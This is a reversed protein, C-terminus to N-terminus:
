AMEVPMLGGFAIDVICPFGEITTTVRAGGRPGSPAAIPKVRPPTLSFTRDNSARTLWSGCIMNAFEGALDHLEGVAPPPDAPDRGTFADLLRLALETPLQCKVHGQFVGDDFGVAMALWEGHVAALDDFAEAECPDIMSFFSREAVDSVAAYIVEKAEDGVLTEPLKLSCM